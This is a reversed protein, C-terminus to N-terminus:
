LAYIGSKRLAAADDDSLASGGVTVRDRIVAGFVVCSVVDCKAENDDNLDTDASRLTVGVPVGSAVVVPADSENAPATTFTAAIVGTVYNVTGSGDGYLRGCGDDRLTQDGHTVTVSLPAITGVFGSGDYAFAKNTGDRDGSLAAAAYTKYPVHLGSSDRMLPVGKGIVGQGSKLQLALIMPQIRLDAVDNSEITKTWVKADM